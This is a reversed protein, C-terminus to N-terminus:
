PLDKFSYIYENGSLNIFEVENNNLSKISWTEHLNNPVSLTSIYPEAILFNRVARERTLINNINEVRDINQVKLQYIITLFIAMLGLAFLVDLLVFARFKNLTYKHLGIWRLSV